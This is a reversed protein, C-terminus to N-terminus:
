KALYGGDVILNTGTIWKAADSLLFIAANAVDEPKGFGLPHLNRIRALSDDDKSYVASKSMPSEVVAPSICNVRIKRPALEIAMSRSAALIAGKTMSYITKGSEGVEAMVSSMFIVSGGSESFNSKNIVKKTLNLSGAVNTNFFHEMKKPTSASIPLTASIGACNILGSIKGLKRVIERIIEDLKEFEILDVAVLLHDLPSNMLQLTDALRKENRGFLIVKAGM